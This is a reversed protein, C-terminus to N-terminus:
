TPARKGLVHPLVVLLINPHASPSTFTLGIEMDTQEWGAGELRLLSIGRSHVQLGTWKPSFRSGGLKEGKGRRMGCTPTDSM